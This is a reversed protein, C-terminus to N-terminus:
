SVDCVKRIVESETLKFRRCVAQVCSEKEFMAVLFARINGCLWDNAQVEGDVYEKWMKCVVRREDMSEMEKRAKGHRLMKGDSWDDDFRFFDVKPDSRADKHGMNERIVFKDLYLQRYLESRQDFWEWIKVREGNGIKELRNPKSISVELRWVNRVDLGEDAWMNEIYPKSCDGGQHLEKYKWYMKWHFVSEVGGWSMQHACKCRKDWEHFDVGQRVGKLYASGDQLMRYVQYQRATMNFDGCLDVRSLGTIDMPMVDLAIDTYERFCDSYLWPNAIEVLCRREDIASSKPTHLITAVKNGQNDMLFWRYQWVNTGSCQVFSWGSPCVLPAGVYPHAMLCSISFWDCSVIVDSERVGDFKM